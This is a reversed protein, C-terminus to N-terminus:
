RVFCFAGALPADKQAKVADGEAPMVWILNSPDTDADVAPPPSSVREAQSGLSGKL